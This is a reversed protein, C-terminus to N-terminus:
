YKEATKYPDINLFEQLPPVDDDDHDKKSKKKKKKKSPSASM